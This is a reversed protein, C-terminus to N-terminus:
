NLNRLNLSQSTMNGKAKLCPLSPQQLKKALSETL